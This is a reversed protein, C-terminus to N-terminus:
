IFNIAIGLICMIIIGTFFCVVRKVIEKKNDGEHILPMLDTLSLYLFNGTAVALFYPMISSFTGISFYGLLGGVVALLACFLNFLYIKKRSLGAFNLIGADSIEQPLEHIIIAITTIIGFRVDAMFAGAIIAGDVFNHLGDGILNFWILHKKDHAHEEIKCDGHQCSHWHFIAEILFLILITILTSLGFKEPSIGGELAEPVSDLWVVALLVGAALSILLEIKKHWGFKFFLFIAFISILSVLITSILIYFIM